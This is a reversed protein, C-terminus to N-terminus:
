GSYGSESNPVGANAKTFPEEATMTNKTSDPNTSVTPMRLDCRAAPTNTAANFRHGRRAKVTVAAL